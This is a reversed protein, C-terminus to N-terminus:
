RRKYKEVLAVFRPDDRIPDMHPDPLIGEISLRGPAALYTELTAIAEDHDGATVLVKRVAGHRIISAWVADKTYPMLDIAQRAFLSAQEAQGLGALAEARATLLIAHEEPIAKPPNSEIEAIAADILIIAARFSRDALESQGALRYTAGFFSEKFLYRFLRGYEDVQWNEVYELAKAYDREYTAAYWGFTNRLNDDLSETLPHELAAQVAAFDGDRLFPIIAGKFLYAESLDPRLELVRNYIQEARAYDRLFIYTYAQGQLIAVNRPDLEVAQTWAETSEDWRGARELIAARWGYVRGDGPLDQGAQRYNTLAKDYDGIASYYAGWAIFTEPSEPALASAHALADKAKELRPATRDLFRDVYMEMHANALAAWAMAFDPDEAVARQYQSVALPVSKRRDIRAFFENGSLYFDYARTNKTPVANILATAKPSLTAQLAMAISNTMDRQISLINKVTFESDYADAWLHDDTLADILQVNVRVENGVRQVSGELVTVVDLERGIQRVNKRSKRYDMVSTRSIVKLGDIKALQTLLDNHIGDTVYADDPDASLNEFPLVAISKRDFDTFAPGITLRNSTWIALAAVLVLTAAIVFLLKSKRNGSGPGEGIGTVPV